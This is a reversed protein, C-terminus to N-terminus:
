VDIPAGGAWRCTWQDWLEGQVAAMSRQWAGFAQMQLQQTQILLQMWAQWGDPLSFLGASPAAPMTSVLSGHAM